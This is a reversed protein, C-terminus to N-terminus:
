LCCFYGILRSFGLKMWFVFLWFWCGFFRSCRVSAQGLELNSIDWSAFTALGALLSCLFDLFILSVLYWFGFDRCGFLCSCL